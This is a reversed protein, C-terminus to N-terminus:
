AVGYRDKLLDVFLRWADGSLAPPIENFERIYCKRYKLSTLMDDCSIAIKKGRVTFSWGWNILFDTIDAAHAEIENLTTQSIKYHKEVGNKFLYSIM